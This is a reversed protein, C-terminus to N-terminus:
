HSAEAIYIHSPRLAARYVELARQLQREANVGDGRKLSCVGEVMRLYGQLDSATTM